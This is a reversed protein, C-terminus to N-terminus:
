RFILILSRSFGISRRHRRRSACFNILIFSGPKIRTSFNGMNPVDRPPALNPCTKNLVVYLSRRVLTRHSEGRSQVRTRATICEVVYANFPRSRTHNLFADSDPACVRGNFRPRRSAILDDYDHTRTVSEARLYKFLEGIIVRRCQPIEYAPWKARPLAFSCSSSDAYNHPSFTRFFVTARDRHGFPSDRARERIPM